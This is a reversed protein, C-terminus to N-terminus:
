HELALRRLAIAQRVEPGLCLLAALMGALFVLSYTLLSHHRDLARCLRRFHAMPPVSVQSHSQGAPEMRTGPHLPLRRASGSLPHRQGYIYISMSSTSDI